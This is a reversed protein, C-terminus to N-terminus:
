VARMGQNGHESFGVTLDDAFQSQRWLSMRRAQEYLGEIYAELVAREIRWHGPSGVRIAPLEGSHVLESVQTASVNLLDAADTLTLFRGLGATADNM